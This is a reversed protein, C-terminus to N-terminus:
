KSEVERVEVSRHHAHQEHYSHIREAMARNFIVLRYVVRYAIPALIIGMLLGGVFFGGIVRAGIDVLINWGEASFVNAETLKKLVDVKLYQWTLPSGLIRSGVWCQAPYIFIITIPNTIFTGLTAGIRSVKLKFSLPISVILQM